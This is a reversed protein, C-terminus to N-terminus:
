HNHNQRKANKRKGRRKRNYYLLIHLVPVHQELVDIVFSSLFKIIFHVLCSPWTTIQIYSFYIKNFYTQQRQPRCDLNLQSCTIRLILKMMAPRLRQLSEKFNDTHLKHRHHSMTLLKIIMSLKLYSQFKKPSWSWLHTSALKRVLFKTMFLKRLIKSKRSSAKM